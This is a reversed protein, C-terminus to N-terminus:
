GHFPGSERSGLTKRSAEGIDVRKTNNNRQEAYHVGGKKGAKRGGRSMDSPDYINTKTDNRRKLGEARM